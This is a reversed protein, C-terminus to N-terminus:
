GYKVNKECRLNSYKTKFHTHTHTHTHARARARSHTSAYTHTHTHRVGVVARQHKDEPSELGAGRTGVMLSDAIRPLGPKAHSPTKYM